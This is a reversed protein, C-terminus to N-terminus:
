RRESGSSLLALVLLDPFEGPAHLVPEVFAVDFELRPAFAVVLDDDGDGTFEAGEDPFELVLEIKGDWRGGVQVLEARFLVVALFNVVIRGAESSRTVPGNEGPGRIMSLKRGLAPAGTGEVGGNRYCGLGVGVDVSSLISALAWLRLALM